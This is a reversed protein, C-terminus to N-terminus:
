SGAAQSLWGPMGFVNRCWIAVPTQQKAPQGADTGVSSLVPSLEKAEGVDRGQDGQEEEPPPYTIM